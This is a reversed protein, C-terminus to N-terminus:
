QKDIKIFKHQTYDGRDNKIIFNYLGSSFHQVSLQVKQVGLNPDLALTRLLQGNAGLVELSLTQHDKSNNWEINLINKTPVPYAVLNQTLPIQEIDTSLENCDAVKNVVGSFANGRTALLTINQTFNYSRAVARQVETDDNEPLSLAGICGGEINKFTFLPVEVDSELPIQKTTMQVMTFACLGYKEESSTQKIFANDVWEVGPIQSKIEGALFPVGEPIKLVIQINSAMNMPQAITEEPVISVLYTERDPLLTLSFKVQAQLGTALFLLLSFFVKNM